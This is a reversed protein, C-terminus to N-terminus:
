PVLGFAMVGSNVAVAVYQKGDVAYSMPSSHWRAALPVNWLVKGTKADLAGFSGDDDCYFLLGSATAVIGGWSNGGGHQEHEWVIKGTNPDLARLFKRPTESDIRRATGGYFSEGQKWWEGNKTFVNCKELAMLYFLGTGPHYAPSMWNTAGEVAPCIQTGEETPQWGEALIPRGKVDIGKAWTLKKVFPTAALFQGNTRDLVYFYGNRNGQLLLKRPAGKFNADV